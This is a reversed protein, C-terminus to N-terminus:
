RTAGIASPYLRVATGSLLAGAGSACLLRDPGFADVAVAERLERATRDSTLLMTNLGSIKPQHHAGVIMDRPELAGGGRPPPPSEDM